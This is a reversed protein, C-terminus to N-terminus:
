SGGLGRGGSSRSGDTPIAAPHVKHFAPLAIPGPAQTEIEPSHPSRNRGSARTQNEEHRGDLISVRPLSIFCYGTDEKIGQSSITRHDLCRRIVRRIGFESLLRDDIASGLVDAVPPLKNM